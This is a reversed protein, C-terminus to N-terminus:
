VVARGKVTVNGGAVDSLRVRFNVLGTADFQWVENLNTTQTSLLMDSLRVRAVEM